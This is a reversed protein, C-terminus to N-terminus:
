SKNEPPPRRSDVRLQYTLESLRLALARNAAESERMDAIHQRRREEEKTDRREERELFKALQAIMKDQHAEFRTAMREEHEHQKKQRRDLWNALLKGLGGTTLVALLAALLETM